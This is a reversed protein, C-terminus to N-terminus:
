RRGDSCMIQLYSRYRSESIKGAKVAKKIACFKEPEQHHNCNNFKCSDLFPSFEIFHNALSAGSIPVGFGRIGPSDVVSAGFPLRYMQVVTTTHKGQQHRKSIEQIPLNFDSHLSNILTTKGVGSHGLFLCTKDRMLARVADIGLGKNAVLDLCDYGISQYLTQLESKGIQEEQSLLDIKNFLLVVPVNQSAAGALVRDIFVVSIQPQKLTVVFFLLDVNAAIVQLSKSLNVSARVVENAREKVETIIGKEQADDLNIFVKDGVVIKSTEEYKEARTEMPLQCRYVGKSTEVDFSSGMAKIVQGTLM